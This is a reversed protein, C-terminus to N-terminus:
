TFKKKGQKRRYKKNYLKLGKGSYINVKKISLLTAGFQTILQRDPGELFFRRSKKDIIKITIYFPLKKKIKHTLGLFLFICNNEKEHSIKYSIGTIKFYLKFGYTLDLIINAFFSNCIGQWMKLKPTNFIRIFQILKQQIFYHTRIYEPLTFFICSTKEFIKIKTRNTAVTKIINLKTDKPLSIGILNKQNKELFKTKLMYYNFKYIYQQLIYVM